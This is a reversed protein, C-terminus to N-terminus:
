DLIGLEHVRAVAQARNAVDLKRYISSTFFKVTGTAIILERAIEANTRGACLLKLIEAERATLPEVPAFSHTQPQPLVRESSATLEAQLAATLMELSGDSVGKLTANKRQLYGTVENRTTQDTLSHQAVFCLIRLGLTQRHGIGPQEALFEGAAALISLLLRITDTALAAELAQRFHRRAANFDGLHYAAIGLGREATVAGGRDGTFQHRELSQRYFAHAEAWQQRLLTVDGLNKLHLAMVGPAGFEEGITYAAEFHGKAASLDGQITAIQGLIDHVFISMWHHGLTQTLALGQQAYERAQDYQGQALAASASGYLTLPIFYLNNLQQAQLRCEQALAAAREYDGQVLRLIMFAMQLQVLGSRDQPPFLDYIRRARTLSQEAEAPRGLRIALLAFNYLCDALASPNMEIHANRELLRIAGALLEAGELYRSQCQHFITLPQAARAVAGAQERSQLHDILWHWASRINEYEAAIERIARLQQATQYMLHRENLYALFYDAHATHAESVAEPSTALKESGYQRLLEHLQYRGDADRRILSKAVLASLDGLTAGAVAQAAALTFGGRFVTLRAFVIRESEGLLQWSHEFVVRMSRHREPVDRLSSTLLDMGQRLQAAIEASNLTSLWSAALEVALPNGEVHRCISIVAERESEWRFDRSV